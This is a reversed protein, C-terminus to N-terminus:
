IKQPPAHSNRTTKKLVTYGLVLPLIASFLLAAIVTGLGDVGGIVMLAGTLKISSALIGLAASWVFLQLGQVIATYFALMFNLAIFPILAYGSVPALNTLGPVFPIAILAPVAVFWWRKIKSFFWEQLAGSFARASEGKS